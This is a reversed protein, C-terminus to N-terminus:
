QRRAYADPYGEGRAKYRKHMWLYQDPANMILQEMVHNVRVSDATHDGSPFNDLAPLIIIRYTGNPKRFGVFPVVPCGSMQAIRSTATNTIAPEGFFPLIESLKTRKGQDPAYWMAHGARLARVLGRLDDFHVAISLEEQRRGRMINAIVPNNPDRYFCGFPHKEVLMRGCLELTTMHTTLMLAGRGRKLADALHEMGEVTFPPFRDAGSWWARCTEVLGLGMSRYHARALARREKEPMSPFALRINTAVIRRRIPILLHFALGIGAGVASMAGWPLRNLLKFFFVGLLTLLQEPRWPQM